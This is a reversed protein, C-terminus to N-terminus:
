AMFEGGGFGGQACNVACHDMCGSTCSTCAAGWPSWFCTRICAAACAVACAAVCGTSPGGGAVPLSPVLEASLTAKGFAESAYYHGNTKYLSAEAVFGPMKM